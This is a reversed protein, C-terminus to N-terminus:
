IAQQLHLNKCLTKREETTIFGDLYAAEIAAARDVNLREFFITMAMEANDPDCTRFGSKEIWRQFLTYFSENPPIEEFLTFRVASRYIENETPNKTLKNIM